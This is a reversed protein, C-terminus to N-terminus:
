SNKVLEWEKYKHQNAPDQLIYHNILRSTMRCPKFTWVESWRFRATTMFWKVRFKYGETHRNLHYIKKGHLKTKKWDVPLGVLEEGTHPNHKVRMPLHKSIAFDGAGWPLKAREGTELLYDRFTYNFKYIINVYESYTLKLEPLEECFRKYTEKSAQRYERKSRM